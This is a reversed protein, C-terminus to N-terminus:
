PGIMGYPGAPALVEFVQALPQGDANLLVNRRGYLEPEGSTELAGAILTDPTVRFFAIPRSAHVVRSTQLVTGFPMADALILDRASAAFRDLYIKIAGFLVPKGAALLVIQRAYASQALSHEMVRLVMECRCAAALTPTMDRHHVLLDRFPAPVLRGEVEAILPLPLGARGYFEDLPYLLNM